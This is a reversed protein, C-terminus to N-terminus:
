GIAGILDHKHETAEDGVLRSALDHSRQLRRFSRWIRRTQATYEGNSIKGADYALNLRRSREDLEWVRREGLRDVGQRAWGAVRGCPVDDLRENPMDSACLAVALQGYGLGALGVAVLAARMEEARTM